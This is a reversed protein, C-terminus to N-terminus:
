WVPHPQSKLEGPAPARPGLMRSPGQVSVKAHRRWGRCGWAWGLDEAEERHPIIRAPQTPVNVAQLEAVIELIVRHSGPTSTRNCHTRHPCPDQDHWPEPFAAHLQQHAQTLPTTVQSIAANYNEQGGQRPEPPSRPPPHLQFGHRGAVCVPSGPFPRYSPM